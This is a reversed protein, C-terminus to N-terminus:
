ENFFMREWFRRSEQQGEQLTYKRILNKECCTTISEKLVPFAEMMETWTACILGALLGINEM